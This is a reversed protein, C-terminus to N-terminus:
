MLGGVEVVKMIGLWLAMPGILGLALTVAGKASEFSADTIAAMKGTYSAVLISVLVLMLWIINIASPKKQSDAM